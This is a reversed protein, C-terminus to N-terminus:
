LFMNGIALSDAIICCSTAQHFRFAHFLYLDLKGIQFLRHFLEVLDHDGLLFLHRLQMGM